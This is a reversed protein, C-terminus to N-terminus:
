LRAGMRRGEQNPLWRISQSASRQSSANLSLPLPASGHSKWRIDDDRRQSASSAKSNRAGPQSWVHNLAVGRGRFIAARVHGDHHAVGGHQMVDHLRDPSSPKQWYWGHTGLWPAILSGGAEAGAGKEYFM